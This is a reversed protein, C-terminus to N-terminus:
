EGKMNTAVAAISEAVMEIVDAGRIGTGLPVAPIPSGVFGFAFLDTGNCNAHAILLRDRALGEPGDATGTKSFIDPACGAATLIPSMARSTGFNAPASLVDTARSLVNFSYSSGLDLRETGDPGTVAQGTTIAALGRLLNDPSITAVNGIIVGRRLESMEAGEKVDFDFDSLWKRVAADPLQKLGWYFALNSSDALAESLSLWNADDSCDGGLSGVDRLNPTAERCLRSLGHDLLLPVMLAKTTSAVSRTSPGDLVLLGARSQYVARTQMSGDQDLAAIMIGADVLHADTCAADGPACLRDDLRPAFTDAMRDLVLRHLAQQAEPDVTLVVPGQRDVSSDLRARERAYGIAGPAIDRVRTTLRRIFAPEPAPTADILAMEAAAEAGDLALAICKEKARRQINQWRELYGAQDAPSGEPGPVILMDRRLAGIICRHGPRLDDLSPAGVIAACLDGAIPTFGGGTHRQGRACQTNTVTWRARDTIDMLDRAVFAPTRFLALSLKRGFGPSAEGLAQEFASGVMGTGGIVQGHRVAYFAARAAGEVSFSLITGPGSIPGEILGEYYVQELAAENSPVATVYHRGSCTADGAVFGLQRGTDDVAPRLTACAEIDRMQQVEAPEPMVEFVFSATTEAKEPAVYSLAVGAAAPFALITAVAAAKASRSSLVESRRRKRSASKAGLEFSRIEGLGSASRLAEEFRMEAESHSQGSQFRDQDPEGGRLVNRIPM